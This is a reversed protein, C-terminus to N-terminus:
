VNGGQALLFRRPTVFLLVLLVAIALALTQKSDIGGAHVLLLAAAIATLGLFLAPRREPYYAHHQALVTFLAALAFDFGFVQPPILWSALVTGGIWYLHCLLLVWTLLRWDAQKALQTCVYYAEDTLSFMAYGLARRHGQFAAAPFSLGYFIYRLNVAVTVLLVAGLDVGAALLGVLLFQM